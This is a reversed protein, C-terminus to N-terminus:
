KSARQARRRPVGQYMMSALYSQDCSVVVGDYGPMEVVMPWIHRKFRATLGQRYLDLRNARCLVYKSAGVLTTRDIACLVRWKTHNGLFAHVAVTLHPYCPHFMDDVVILGDDCVFEASLNLDSTASAASHDGDIHVMRCPLTGFRSAVEVAAIKLSDDKMIVIRDADLNQRRIHGIVRKEMAPVPWEFPDIAFAQEGDRLARAMALLFRGEYVGIEVFHGRFGCTSQYDMLGAVIAASLKSSWGPVSEFTQSLYNDVQAIGTSPVPLMREHMPHPSWNM